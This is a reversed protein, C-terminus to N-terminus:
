IQVFSFFIYKGWIPVVKIENKYYKKNNFFSNITKKKKTLQITNM